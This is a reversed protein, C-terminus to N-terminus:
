IHLCKSIDASFYSAAAPGLSGGGGGGLSTTPLSNLILISNSWTTLDPQLSKTPETWKM